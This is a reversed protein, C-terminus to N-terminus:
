DGRKLKELEDIRIENELIMNELIETDSQEKAMIKPEKKLEDIRKQIREQLEKENEAQKRTESIAEKIKKNLKNFISEATAQDLFLDNEEYGAKKIDEVTRFMELSILNEGDFLPKTNNEKKM